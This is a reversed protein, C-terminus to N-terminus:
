GDQWRDSAWESGAAESRLNMWRGMVACCAVNRDASIQEILGHTGLEEGGTEPARKSKLRWQNRVEDAGCRYAPSKLPLQLCDNASTQGLMTGRHQASGKRSIDGHLGIV